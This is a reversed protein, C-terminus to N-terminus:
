APRAETKVNLRLQAGPVSVGAAQHLGEGTPQADSLPGPSGCERGEGRLDTNVRSYGEKALM